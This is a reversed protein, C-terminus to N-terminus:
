KIIRLNQHRSFIFKRKSFLIDPAARSQSCERKADECDGSYYGDAINANIRPFALFSIRILIFSLYFYIFYLVFGGASVLGQLETSYLCSLPM